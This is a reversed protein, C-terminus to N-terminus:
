NQRKKDDMYPFPTGTILLYQALFAGLQRESQSAMLKWMSNFDKTSIQHKSAQVRLYFEFFRERASSFSTIAERYYHDFLARCGIEFLIEFKTAQVVTISKHGNSCEFEYVGNDQVQLYSAQHVQGPTEMSCHICYCTIKM